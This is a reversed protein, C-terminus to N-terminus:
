ADAGFITRIAVGSAAISVGVFEAFIRENAISNGIEYGQAGWSSAFIVLFFFACAGANVNMLAIIGYSMVIWLIPELVPSQIYLGLYFGVLIGLVAGIMRDVAMTRTQLRSPFIIMLSANVIMTPDTKLWAEGLALGIAM